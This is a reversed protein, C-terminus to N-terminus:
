HMPRKAVVIPVLPRLRLRPVANIMSIVFAALFPLSQVVLMLGWMLAERNEFGEATVTALAMGMLAILFIIEDRAMLLGQVFAPRDACKPTRVFPRGSTFIGQLIAKGVTHTLAMGAIAAGIRELMSCKVRSGYLWFNCVLKFAFAAVTPYMFIIPPFGFIRPSVLVGLSWLIGAIAFLLHASDVFWPLWGTVFHYRQGFTLTKSGPLMERWHRKLIQVAGYAWRFRQVKYDSFTDPVLGRGFSEPCYVAEWGHEFLRLGLEADETICWEAWGEVEDLASRRILTM